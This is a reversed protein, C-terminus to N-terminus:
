IIFYERKEEKSYFVVWMQSQPVFEIEPKYIQVLYLIVALLIILIM